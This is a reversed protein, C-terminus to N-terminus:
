SHLILISQFWAKQVQQPVYQHWPILAKKQNLGFFHKGQYSAGSPSVKELECFSAENLIHILTLPLVFYASLYSLINEWHSRQQPRTHCFKLSMSPFKVTTHPLSFLEPSLKSALPGARKDKKRATQRQTDKQPFYLFPLAAVVFFQM